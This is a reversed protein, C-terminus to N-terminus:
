NRIQIITQTMSTSTEMAKANAQFNRQETILDVLEQTLDVNARETAGSRVTGFGASGAEGYKPTGSESTKYYNTDGIQRLGSPNSFNVLVVKALSKQAGNSYSAQVLGDDKIALGVLDGEPAGDQSQSLVAFPSAFQTSKSYDINITLAGKGNPLYVTDLQAGQKPSVLNGATDFTLEGKDFYIPSWEPLSTFGSASSSEAGFGDIYVVAGKDDTFPKPKIWTTTKGFQADLGDLGWKASGTIKIYSDTSATGTTFTLANTKSDYGVTVGDITQPTLGDKSESSLSNIGAQLAEKFTGLTYTDKPPITVTGTVGNVSVVFTNNTEDVSFNNDVNVAMANGVLTAPESTIGRLAEVKAIDQFYTSEDGTLGLGKSTQTALSNPRIDTIKISSADGTSGSKFVFTGAVADYEVKVGYRQDNSARYPSTSTSPSLTLGVSEDNVGQALPATLGVVSQVSSITLKDSASAPTFVLQQKNTDYSVVIKDKYDADADIQAQVESVLDEYRMNFKEDGTNTLDIDLQNPSTLGGGLKLQLTFTTGTTSSFNFPREDGYARNIANTLEQAIQAGSLKVDRGALKDLGVTVPNNSKDVNITFLNRLDDASKLGDYISDTPVGATITTSTATLSTLVNNITDKVVINAAVNEGNISPNTSTIKLDGDVLAAQFSTSFTEDNNLAAVFETSNLAISTSLNTVPTNASSSTFVVRHGVATASSYGALASGTFVGTSPNTPMTGAILSSFVSAVEDATADATTTYTLTGVTVSEGARLPQFSVEATETTATAAGQTVVTTPLASSNNSTVAIDTVDSLATASTFVVTSGAVTGSSFGTLSGSFNSGSPVAGALLSAFQTAVQAATMAATASYTLGAVTVKDGAVMSKFTVAASETTGAAKGNHITVGDSKFTHEGFSIEYPGNGMVYKAGTSAEGLVTAASGNVTQTIAVNDNIGSVSESPEIATISLVNNNLQAVYANKFATNTNLADVFGTLTTEKIEVPDGTTTLRMKFLTADKDFVFNATSRPYATHVGDGSLTQPTGGVTKTVELENLIDADDVSPDIATVRLRSTADEATGESAGSNAAQASTSMTFAVASVSRGKSDEIILDKGNSAVRVSLNSEGGDQSRLKTQIESALSTLTATGPRINSLNITKGGVTITMKDFDTVSANTAFKPALVKVETTAQAVYMAAFDADANLAAAVDLVSPSTADANAIPVSVATGGKNTFSVKFSDAAVSTNLDYDASSSGQLTLLDSKSLKSYEKMNVGDNTGTGLDTAQGGSVKAPESTRVDNLDDLSFKVTKKNFSSNLAAIEAATKFDSKAKLEGYKNVYMLDGLSNTAQQLSANVLNDGVYVYTQWKNNPQGQSANQTKVYYVSALYSNGGADYVTLATSKNYSTPDNRNFDKTIVEADAPFNLGLQIKSTQKAMGTTKQPITLVNMDNLNAKGSSDVSAAMLKQGASNVVNYQDNMMFVGNRTFIDQFGDQSKLPFFGDGSIALDLTNSSFVMNGQGFEQVVRKLSVGQGITASAKQLPSTAFIDGFDSRSRKFGTTSVNAINNSTVGLQATAANLGTLSTYFSM